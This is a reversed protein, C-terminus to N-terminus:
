RSISSAYRDLCTGSRRSHERRETAQLPSASRASQSLYRAGACVWGCSQLRAGDPRRLCRHRGSRHQRTQGLSQPPGAIQHERAPQRTATAEDRTTNILAGVVWRRSPGFNRSGFSPRLRPQGVRRREDMPRIQIRELASGATRQSRDALRWATYRVPFSCVSRRMTVVFYRGPRHKQYYAAVDTSLGHVGLVPELAPAVGVGPRRLPRQRRHQVALHRREVRDPVGQRREGARGLRCRLSKAPAAAQDIGARARRPPKGHLIADLQMRGEAPRALTEAIQDGAALRRQHARDFAGLVVNRRGDRRDVSQREASGVHEHRDGCRAAGREGARHLRRARAAPASVMPRALLGPM